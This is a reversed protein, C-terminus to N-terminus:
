QMTKESQAATLHHRSTESDLKAAAQQWPVGWTTTLQRGTPLGPGMFHRGAAQRPGWVFQAAAGAGAAAATSALQLRRAHTAQQNPQGITYRSETWHECFHLHLHSASTAQRRLASPLLLPSSRLSMCDGDDLARVGPRPSVRPTFAHLPRASHNPPLLCPSKERGPPGVNGVQLELPPVSVGGVGKRLRRRRASARIPAKSALRRKSM